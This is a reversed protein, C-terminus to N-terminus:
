LILIAVPLLDPHVLEYRGCLLAMLRGQERNFHLKHVGHVAALAAVVHQQDSEHVCEQIRLGQQACLHQRCVHLGRVPLLDSHLLEDGGRLRALLRGQVCDIMSTM